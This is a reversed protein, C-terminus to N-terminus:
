SIETGEVWVGQPSLTLEFKTLCKKLRWGLACYEGSRYKLMCCVPCPWIAPHKSCPLSPLICLIGCIGVEQFSAIKCYNHMCQTKASPLLRAECSHLNSEGFRKKLHELTRIETDTDFDSKALLREALMGRCWPLWTWNSSPFVRRGAHIYAHNRCKNAPSTHTASLIAGRRTSAPEQRFTCQGTSVSSYTRLGM